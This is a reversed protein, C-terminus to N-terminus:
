ENMDLEGDHPTSCFFYTCFFGPALPMRMKNGRTDSTAAAGPGRGGGATTDRRGNGTQERGGEWGERAGEATLTGNRPGRAGRAGGLHGGCIRRPSAILHHHSSAPREKAHSSAERGVDPSTTRRENSAAEQLNRVVSASRM